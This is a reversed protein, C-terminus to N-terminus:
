RGNLQTFPSLQSGILSVDDADQKFSPPMAPWVFAPRENPVPPLPAEGIIVQLVTKMSPRHHPNPHCCALGLVLMRKMGEEDFKGDLRPDVADLIGERRHLEWLWYVIGNNYDNDENQKGPKRGCVVELVLVGFAYIDTEVTARGILFTEPAMYGPTGAIEKTTHHTKGSQQVTRALGFDGLRANFDSDLMINSAKIDRHLVRKACGNHLYDLAEAVGYIIIHRKEWSLNEHEEMGLNEDGYIFKDLSGNPMFEYVLLLELREYCWGILKVLNKHHLSGITTVEAIFEQKGQSSDKSVRKVAVELKNALFGKYVTGFGGKGLKSRPNFNGTAKRLDKLKFKRPAVSSGEIQDEIRPYADEPRERRKRQLYLYVVIAILLLVAPVTIWIWLREPNEDGIDEVSFEWSRICNLETYNGTSASFGVFVREPLHDSLNLPLSIVPKFEGTENSISVVVTKTKGDYEVRARIDTNSSLNVGYGTLSVQEISFISNVDLGVHNEDLDEPYSKRTDFEIAVVDAQSSGNTSANVIGLWQGQSAEPLTTDATLIFALGEGGVPSTVPSIRLVFTTNFSATVGKSKSWLRFPEKYFVRGSRNTINEGRLDPTVQIADLFVVSNKSLILDNNTEYPFSQFSFCGVQKLAGCLLIALFFSVLVESFQKRGM